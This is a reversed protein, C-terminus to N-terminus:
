VRAAEARRLVAQTVRHIDALTFPKLIVPAGARELFAQGRSDAGSGTVFVMRPLMDPHASCIEGYLGPGDLVPMHLDCLILDYADRDLLELAAAGHPAAEARHGDLALMEVLIESLLPEDEVVLVRRGRIPESCGAAPGSDTPRIAM